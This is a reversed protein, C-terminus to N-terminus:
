SATETSAGTTNSQPRGKGTAILGPLSVGVYAGWASSCIDFCEYAPVLGVHTFRVETAGDTGSLEFRIETDKWESQDEVFSMQNEIVRWTVKEGPVLETVRLKCYHLGEVRYSFEDGVQGAGGDIEEMWWARVNNIADFVEKPGREVSFTTTYSQESM